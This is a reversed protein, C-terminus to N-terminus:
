DEKDDKVFEVKIPEKQEAKVETKDTWNFRNKMSFVWSVSNFQKGGWMGAMGQKEWHLLCMSKAIDYAEKFEPFVKLWEYLTSRAVQILGAFSEFSHGSGMHDKLMEPYKEDYKYAM